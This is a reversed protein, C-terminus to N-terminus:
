DDSLSVIGELPGNSWGISRGENSQKKWEGSVHLLHVTPEDSPALQSLGRQLTGLVRVSAELTSDIWKVTDIRQKRTDKVQKNAEKSELQM